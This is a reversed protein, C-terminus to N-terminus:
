QARMRGEDLALGKRWQELTVRQPREPAMQQKLKDESHLIAMRKLKREARRKRDKAKSM